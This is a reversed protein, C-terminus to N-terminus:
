EGVTSMDIADTAVRWEAQAARLSALAQERSTKNAGLWVLGAIIATFSLLAILLSPPSILGILNVVFFVGGSFIALRSALMGKRCSEITDRLAEIKAEIEALRDQIADDSM